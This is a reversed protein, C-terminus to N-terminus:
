LYRRRKFSVTEQYNRMSSVKRIDAWTGKYYPIYNRDTWSTVVDGVNGNFYGFMMFSHGPKMDAELYAMAFTSGFDNFVEVVDGSEIGLEKADEPNIEIPAMPLTMANFEDIVVGYVRGTEQAQGQASVAFSAMWIQSLLLVYM